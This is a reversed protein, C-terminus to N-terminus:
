SKDTSFELEIGNRESIRCVNCVNCGRSHIGSLLNIKSDFM